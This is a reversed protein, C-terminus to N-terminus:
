FVYLSKLMACILLFWCIIIDSKSPLNTDTRYLLKTFHFSVTKCEIMWVITKRSNSANRSRLLKGPSNCNVKRHRTYFKISSKECTHNNYALHRGFNSKTKDRLHEKFRTEISRGTEGIYVAPCNDCNLQYVGSEDLLKRRDLNHNGLHQLM